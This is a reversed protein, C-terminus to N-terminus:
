APVLLVWVKGSDFKLSKGSKTKYVTPKKGTPRSWTAQYSRGDRLVLAAGKGVTRAVPSFSGAADGVVRGRVIRVRQVVVTDASMRGRETSTLPAGNQSVLWRSGSWHFDYSAAQYGVRYDRTKTGGSPASGTPFPSRVPKTGPLRGPNIYMNHPAPRSGSRFFAGGANDPSAWRLDARNLMPKLEPATGSFALVPNRFQALLQVDTERASRVPGIVAPRKGWYVALMRTLGGEVPEVFVADASGIGTHPRSQAVSDIKVVLAAPLRTLPKPKPPKSTTTTPATTAPAAPPPPDDGRVLLVTVVAGIVVVAVVALAILTERRREM